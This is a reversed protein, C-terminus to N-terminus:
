KCGLLAGKWAVALVEDLRMTRAGPEGPDRRFTCYGCYDRCLNTLPIFVKPSYSVIPGRAVDRRREAAAMLRPLSAQDIYMLSSADKLSISGLQEAKDIITDFPSM